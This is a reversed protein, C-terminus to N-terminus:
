VFKDIVEQAFKKANQFDEENPHQNVIEIYDAWEDDETIIQKRIFKEIAKSPKGMCSFFGAFEIKKQKCTWELTKKANGAWREHLFQKREDGEEPLYTSHTMFGALKFDPSEPLNPLLKLVPKAFDSSHCAAGIFILDYDEFNEKKAEKTNILKTENDKSAVENIMEAIKQTNGTESHYTILIKL